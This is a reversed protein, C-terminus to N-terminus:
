PHAIVVMAGPQDRLFCVVRNLNGTDLAALSEDLIMIEPRQLVARAIFVRSREGHSMHWGTEGVAQSMGGPMRDLLEGLGLARCIDEAERLAELSPPWEQGMLLNFAL